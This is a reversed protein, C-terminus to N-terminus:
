KTPAQNALREDSKAVQDRAVAEDESTTADQLALRSEDRAEQLKGEQKLLWGLLGHSYSDDPYLTLAERVHQEAKPLNGAEAEVFAQAFRARWSTHDLRLGEELERNADALRGNRALSYSYNFHVRASEPFLGVALREKNLKGTESLYIATAQRDTLFQYEKHPAGFWLYAPDALLAQGNTFIVGACDHNVPKDFADREVLVFYADLGVCRALAIYIFAYEQCTLNVEPDSWAKFVEVATRGGDPLGTEGHKLLATFLRKAKQVPDSVGATLREAWAQIRASSVFPPVVSRPGGDKEAAQGSAQSVGRPTDRPVSAAVLHPTLTKELMGLSDSARKEDESRHPNGESSRTLETIYSECHKIAEPINHLKTYLKTAELDVQPDTVSKFRDALRLQLAAESQKGLEVYATALKLHVVPDYPAVADAERLAAVAKEFEGEGFYLEALELQGAPNDRLLKAAKTLEQVAAGNSDADLYICGLRYHAMGSAPDAQVARRAWELAEQTKGEDSTIAALIQLASASHPDLAVARRLAAEDQEPVPSSRYQVRSLIELAEASKTLPRQIRREEAASPVYGVERSIRNVVLPILGQLDEGSALIERSARGSAVDVLQLNVQWKAGERTYSGWAVLRAETIEGVRRAHSADVPGGTRLATEKCGFATSSEPVVRIAGVCRLGHKILIQITESWHDLNTDGSLNAPALIAISLPESALASHTLVWLAVTTCIFGRRAALRCGWRREPFRSDKSAGRAWQIFSHQM